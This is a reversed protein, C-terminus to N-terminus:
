IHILSLWTHMGYPMATTPYTNGYSLGFHSDTGQRTDVLEVLSRTAKQAVGASPFLMGPLALVVGLFIRFRCVDRLIPHKTTM